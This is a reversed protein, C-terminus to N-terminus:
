EIDESEEEEEEKAKEEEMKNYTILDPYAEANLDPKKIPGSEIKEANPIKFIKGIKRPRTNEREIM